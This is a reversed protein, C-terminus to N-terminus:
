GLRIMWQVCANKPRTEGGHSAPKKPDGLAVTAANTTYAHSHTGTNKPISASLTGLNPDSNYKEDGNDVDKRLNAGSIRDRKIVVPHSHGGDGATKGTHVHTSETHTHSQFQDSQASGVDAGAKVRDADRQSGLDAGRLFLGRLDPLNFTKAGDGKGWAAGITAFLEPYQTRSVARGDCIAWTVPPRAGAFAQITGVPVVQNLLQQVVSELAAIRDQDSPM